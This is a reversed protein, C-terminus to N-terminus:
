RAGEELKALIQQRHFVEVDDEGQRGPDRLDREPVLLRHIVQQETGRGFRDHGDGGVGFAKAGTDAHGAHQVAPARRQGMMGVDVHDDRAASQRGVAGAPDGAAGTEEQMHPNQRPQESAQKQVPQPIQVPGTLQGEEGIEGLQGARVGEAGPEGREAFGFPHDIGFRGEASGLGHQGIQASVRVPDRDGVAAQDARIGIGHREAPLIVPDLAAVARPDHPQGRGLEDAPEQDVDQGVAEVADAMVAQQGARGALGVDGLDAGQEADLLRFLDGNRLWLKLDGREGQALWAGTAATGHADDLDEPPSLFRHRASWRPLLCCSM